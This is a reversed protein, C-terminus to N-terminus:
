LFLTLLTRTTRELYENEEDNQNPARKKFLEYPFEDINAHVKIRKRQNVAAAYGEYYHPLKEFYCNGDKDVKYLDKSAELVNDLVEEPTM